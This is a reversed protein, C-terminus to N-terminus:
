NLWARRAKMREATEIRQLLTHHGCTCPQAGRGDRVARANESSCRASRWSRATIRWCARAFLMLATM